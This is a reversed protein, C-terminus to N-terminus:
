KAAEIASRVRDALTSPGRLESALRIAATLLGNQGKEALAGPLM